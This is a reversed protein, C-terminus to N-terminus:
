REIPIPVGDVCNYPVGTYGEINARCISHLAELYNIWESWMIMVVIALILLLFFSLFQLLDFDIEEIIKDLTSKENM